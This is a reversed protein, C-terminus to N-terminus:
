RRVEVPQGEPSTFRLVSVEPDLYHGRDAVRWGPPLSGDRWTVWADWDVGGPRPGVLMLVSQRPYESLLVWLSSAALSYSHIFLPAREVMKTKWLQKVGKSAIRGGAPIRATSGTFLENM